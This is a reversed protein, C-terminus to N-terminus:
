VQGSAPSSCRDSSSRRRLGTTVAFPLLCMLLIMLGGSGSGEEGSVRACGTSLDFDEQLYGSFEIDGSEILVPDDAVSSTVSLRAKVYRLGDQQVGVITSSDAFLGSPDFDSTEGFALELTFSSGSPVTDALSESLFSPARNLIEFATTTATYSGTQYGVEGFLIFNGAIDEINDAPVGESDILWTRGNAGDGGSANNGSGGDGKGVRIRPLSSNDYQIRNVAFLIVGGGGGGGGAGALRPSDVSGGDGGSALVYGSTGLDINGGAVLIIVGGGAGGGAGSGQATAAGADWDSGGGGGAGGSLTSFEPEDTSSGATGNPANLVDVGQNAAVNSNFSGGGSGGVGGNADGTAGGSGGTVSGNINAGSGPAVSSGGNGTGGAGGDAGACVGTGGSVGTNPDSNGDAGDEGSCDITGSITMHGMVRIVLPQSGTGRLTWGSALDFTTFQLESYTDTDVTIVQGSTDGGVSFNAYTSENFVGDSGDGIDIAVNTAGGGVNYGVVQNPPHLRGLPTNWVLTSSEKQADSSFSLTVRDALSPLSILILLLFVFIVRM